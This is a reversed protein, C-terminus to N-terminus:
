RSVGSEGGDHQSALPIDGRALHCPRSGGKATSATAHRPWKYDRALHHFGHCCLCRPPLRYTAVWHSYSLCNFCRGHLEAPVKRTQLPQEIDRRPEASVTAPRVEQRGLIERWRDTSPSVRGCLGVRQPAPIRGDVPKAPLGCVLQSPGFVAVLPPTFPLRLNREFYEATTGFERGLVLRFL